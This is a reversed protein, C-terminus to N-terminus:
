IRLKKIVCLSDYAAQPNTDMIEQIRCLRSWLSNNDSCSVVFMLFLFLIYRM